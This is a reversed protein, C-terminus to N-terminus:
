NLIVFLCVPCSHKNEIKSNGDAKQDNQQCDGRGDNQSYESSTM